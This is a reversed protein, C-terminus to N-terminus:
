ICKKFFRPHLCNSYGMNITRSAELCLGKPCGCERSSKEAAKHQTERSLEQPERGHRKRPNVYLETKDKGPSHERQSTCKSPARGGQHQKTLHSTCVRGLRM